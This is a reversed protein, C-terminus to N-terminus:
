LVGIPVIDMNINSKMTDVHARASVRFQDTIRKHMSRLRRGLGHPYDGRKASHQTTVKLTQKATPLRIGFTRAMRAPDRHVLNVPLFNLATCLTASKM